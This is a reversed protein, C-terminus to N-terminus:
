PCFYNDMFDRIEGHGKRCGPHLAQATRGDPSLAISNIAGDGNFEVMIRGSELDWVRGEESRMSVVNVQLRQPM